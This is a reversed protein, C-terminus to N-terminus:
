RDDVVVVVDGTTLVYLEQLRIDVYCQKHVIITVELLVFCIPFKKELLIDACNKYM